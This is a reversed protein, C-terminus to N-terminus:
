SAAMASAVAGMLAVSFYAAGSEWSALIVDPSTSIIQGYLIGAIVLLAGNAYALQRAGRVSYPVKLFVALGLTLAGLLLGGGVVVGHLQNWDQPHSNLAHLWAACLSALGVVASSLLWATVARARAMAPVNM